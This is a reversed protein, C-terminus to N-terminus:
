TLNDALRYFDAVLYLSGAVIILGEQPRGQEGNDKEGAWNLANLLQGEPPDDDDSAWLEADPFISSVVQKLDSPKESKVWPMGEPPTFRLLGIRIKIGVGSQPHISLLPALTQLPTKPPSHSLGLLYTLTIARRTSTATTSLIPAVLGNIFSSLTASSAPNHAGDVLILADHTKTSIDNNGPLQVPLSITHLSLRGPWRTRRIGALITEPTVKAPIHLGQYEPRKSSHTLLASIIGLATGLNALQHNGQLPLLARLAETYAPITVEVPQPPLQHLKSPLLVTEPAVPRDYSPDWKRKTPILGQLVVGGVDGIVERVVDVVERYKQEGLVFPKGRRAIAAKEKAIESVITGLFAQHDLDVATLASVLICSDLIVNTADLRGGMGVEVVAVDVQAQEFAMLATSTLLEFSSTRIGHEKDAAEVEKRVRAYVDPSIPQDDITICDYISVLHPSNFRGVRYSSAQLISSVLASVSGKGNTGAIHCTPRTYPPLHSLLKEIRDLSLDISM